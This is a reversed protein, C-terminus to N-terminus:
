KPANDVEGTAGCKWCPRSSLCKGNHYEERKSGKCKPCVKKFKSLSKEKEVTGDKCTLCTIIYPDKGEEDKALDVKRGGGCDPCPPKKKPCDYAPHAKGHGEIDCHCTAGEACAQKLAKIDPCSTCNAHQPNLRRCLDCIMKLSDRAAEQIKEILAQQDANEVKLKKLIRYGMSGELGEVKQKLATNKDLADVHNRQARECVRKWHDRDDKFSWGLGKLIEYSKVEEEVAQIHSLLSKIDEDAQGLPSTSNDTYYDGCGSANEILDLEEATLKKGETKDM